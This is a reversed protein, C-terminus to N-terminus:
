RTRGVLERPASMGWDGGRGCSAADVDSDSADVIGSAATPQTGPVWRLVAGGVLYREAM